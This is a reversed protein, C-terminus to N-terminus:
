SKKAAVRGFKTLLWNLVAEQDDITARRIQSSLHVRDPKSLHLGRLGESCCSCVLRMNNITAVEGGLPAVVFEVKIRIATGDCPDFDGTM